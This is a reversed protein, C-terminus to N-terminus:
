GKVASSAVSQIFFRQFSLFVAMVPAVLMVGFAFIEGWNKVKGFFVVIELPLPRVNVADGGVVMVPWLFSNWAALFTLITVSAFVPKSMPVIVSFFVKFPGAGDLRAAEQIESPLGIFFTYFLFISFASAVFPIYQVFYSNRFDLMLYFLPVAIAEFPLIVLLIIIGLILNRGRWRLRALAYAAMSNVVLGGLVIVVSVIASSVFFNWFYGTSESDFISVVKIYNDFSLNKPVFGGFGDLVQDNPKLSGVLLYYIPAFFVLTVATTLAYKFSRKTVGRRQRRRVRSADDIQNQTLTTM